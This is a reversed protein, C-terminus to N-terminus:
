AADGQVAPAESTLADMFAKGDETTWYNAGFQEAESLIVTANGKSSYAAKVKDLNKPTLKGLAELAGPFEPSAKKSVAVSMDGDPGQCVLDVFAGGDTVRLNIALVRASKTDRPGGGRKPFDDRMKANPDIALIANRLEAPNQEGSFNLRMLAGGIVAEIEIGLLNQMKQEKTTNPAPSASEVAGTHHKILSALDRRAM